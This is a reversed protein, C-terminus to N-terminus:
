SSRVNRRRQFQAPTMVTNTTIIQPAATRKRPTKTTREDEQIMSSNVSVGMSSTKEGPILCDEFEDLDFSSDDEEERVKTGKTPEDEEDERRNLWSM